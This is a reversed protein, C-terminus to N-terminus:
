ICGICMWHVDIVCVICMWVCGIFMEYVYLVSGICMWYMDLACRM